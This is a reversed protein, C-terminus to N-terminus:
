RDIGKANPAERKLAQGCYKCGFKCDKVVVFHRGDPSAKCRDKTLGDWWYVPAAPIAILHDLMSPPVEGDEQRIMSVKGGCVNCRGIYSFCNYGTCKRVMPPVVMEVKRQCKLCYPQM